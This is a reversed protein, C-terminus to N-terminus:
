FFQDLDSQKKKRMFGKLEKEKQEIFWKKIRKDSGVVAKPVWIEKDTFNEIITLYAKETELDVKGLMYNSYESM